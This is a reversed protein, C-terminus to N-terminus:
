IEAVSEWGLQQIEDDLSKEQKGGQLLIGGQQRFIKQFWKLSNIGGIDTKASSKIEVPILKEEKELVVDTEKGSSDRFFYVKGMQQKNFRNKMIESLLLNEFIAGYHSSRKLGGVTHIGLLSCLVGTDYFYLKPSKILRKSFKIWCDKLM